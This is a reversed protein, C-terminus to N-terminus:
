KQNEDNTENKDDDWEVRVDIDDDEEDDMNGFTDYQGIDEKQKKKREGLGAMKAIELMEKAKKSKINKRESRVRRSFTSSDELGYGRYPRGSVGGRNAFEADNIDKSPGIGWGGPAMKLSVSSRRCSEAVRSSGGSAFADCGYWTLCSSMLVVLALLANNMISSRM